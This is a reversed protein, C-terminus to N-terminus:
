FCIVTSPQKQKLEKIRIDGEKLKRDILAGEWPLSSFVILFEVNLLDESSFVLGKKKLYKHPTDQPLRQNGRKSLFTRQCKTQRRWIGM